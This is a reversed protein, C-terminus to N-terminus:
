TKPSYTGAARLAHRDEDAPMNQNTESANDRWGCEAHLDPLNFLAKSDGRQNSVRNFWGPGAAEQMTARERDEFQHFFGPLLDQRAVPFVSFRDSEACIGIM